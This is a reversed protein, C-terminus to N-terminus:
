SVPIIDTPYRDILMPGDKTVIVMYEIRVTSKGPIGARGEVAIAMGEKIEQPFELSWQRNVVPQEYQHLGIGHGIEITLLEAEKEYGLDKAAPFHKAASSTEGGPVLEGIVGLLRSQLEEMWNKEDATPGRGVTFTRYSCANYGMYSTGCVNGFLLDGHTIFLNTGKIGREHALPGARFGAVVRDAGVSSGASRGVAAVESDTMGAHMGRAIAAWMRDTIAGAMRLCAIEESTKVAMAELMVEDGPVVHDCVEGLASWAYSDFGAVALVENSLQLKELETRIDNAFESAEFKCAANGPIGRLWSRAVRWERIWPAEPPMNCVYGAHAFVIPDSEAPFLVYWLDPTFEPGRLGTLYRCYESGSALVAPIGNKKLTARAREMRERRLQAPDIRQQWDVSGPGFTLSPLYSIKSGSIDQAM